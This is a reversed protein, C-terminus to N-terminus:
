KPPRSGTQDVVAKQIGAFGNCGLLISVYMVSTHERHSARSAAACASPM